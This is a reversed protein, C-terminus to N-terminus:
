FIISIEFKIFILIMNIIMKLDFVEKLNDKSLYVRKYGLKNDEETSHVMEMFQTMHFNAMTGIVMKNGCKELDM